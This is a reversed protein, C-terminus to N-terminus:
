LSGSTDASVRSSTVVLVAAILGVLPISWSNFAPMTPSVVPALSLGAAVIM